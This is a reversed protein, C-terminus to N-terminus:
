LRARRLIRLLIAGAVGAVLPVGLHWVIVHALEFNPCHLELVALGALGALVGRALGSAAPHVAFGRRLVLWCAISVPLALALGTTLCPIGQAVFREAHYDHFLLAFVASLAGCVIALLVGPAVLRRSGPVMEAASVAAAISVLAALVPFITAVEAANMKQVGHMGLVAAAAVAIGACILVLASILLRM